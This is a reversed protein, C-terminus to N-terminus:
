CNEAKRGLGEKKKEALLKMEEASELVKDTITVGGLMRAIEETEGARDLARIGTTTVMGDTMKEIVFHTDAMAAIQPLHTICLLQHSAAIGAMKESVMQATRGSVGVDIEDFIMTEIEDKGAFVSKMALMIRSLEGGSAIKALPQIPEGPNTSILFEVEDNGNATYNELTKFELELKVDLFNLDKLAETLRAVLQKASEKRIATMQECLARLEKEAKQYAADLDALYRDYDELREVRERCQEAYALVASVDAGYKATLRNVLDLREEVFAFREQTDETQDMYARLEHNFDRVCDEIQSLAESMQALREDLGEVRALQRLAYGLQENVSATGDGTLRYVEGLAEEITNANSLRRYEQKLEEEEGPILRAEEIEQLEFKAFSLERLRADEDGLAAEREEKKARYQEYVAKVQEKLRSLPEGAFRDLMQLHASKKLLSQHEHQGHIDILLSALEKVAAATVTEGNVRLVSRGNSLLKRSLLIEGAESSIELEAMKQLVAENETQFVLEVLAYESGTRLMEKTMRGGLAANISGIIVSKGAGTEGSIINLKEGFYVEIEDIIAFNRAHLSVLM